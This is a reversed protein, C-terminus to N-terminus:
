AQGPAAYKTDKSLAKDMEECTLLPTAFGSVMGSAGVAVGMRAAAINDPLDMIVIVDESGFAYYISELKGGLAKVAAKIADRRGSAGDKKRGVLGEPPYSGQYMSKPM